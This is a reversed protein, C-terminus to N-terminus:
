SISRRIFSCNKIRNGPPRAGVAGVEAFARLQGFSFPGNWPLMVMAFRHFCFFGPAFDFPHQFKCSRWIM